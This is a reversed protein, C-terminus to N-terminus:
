FIILGPIEQEIAIIRMPLQNRVYIMWRPYRLTHIWGVCHIEPMRLLHSKLMKKEHNQEITRAVADMLLALGKKSRAATGVVPVGLQESLVSLDIKIGKKEAEDMLNVCVVVNSAIELTQLVLNLSREMCTADCIIIIVDAKGSCIFDRDRHM